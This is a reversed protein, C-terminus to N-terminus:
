MVDCRVAGCRMTLCRALVAPTYVRGKRRTSCLECHMEVILSKIAMFKSSSLQTNDQYIIDLNIAEPSDSFIPAYISFKTVSQGGEPIHGLLEELTKDIKTGKQQSKSLSATVRLGALLPFTQEDELQRFIRQGDYAANALQVKVEYLEGKEPLYEKASSREVDQPSQVYVSSLLDEFSHMAISSTLITHKGNEIMELHTTMAFTKNSFDAFGFTAGIAFSANWLPAVSGDGKPDAHYALLGEAYNVRFFTSAKGLSLDDPRRMKAHFLTVQDPTMPIVAELDLTMPETNERVTVIAEAKLNLSTKVTGTIGDPMDFVLTASGKAFRAGAVVAYGGEVADVEVGVTLPEPAYVRSDTSNEDSSFILFAPIFMSVSTDLATLDPAIIQFARLLASENVFRTRLTATAGAGLGCSMGKATSMGVDVEGAALNKSQLYDAVNSPVSLSEILDNYTPIPVKKLVVCTDSTGPSLSAEVNISTAAYTGFKATASGVISMEKLKKDRISQALRLSLSGDTVWLKPISLPNWPRTLSGVYTVERADGDYTVHFRTEFPNSNNRFQLRMTSAASVVPTPQFQTINVETDKLLMQSGMRGGVGLAASKLTMSKLAVKSDANSFRLTVGADVVEGLLFDFCKPNWRGEIGGSLVWEGAVTVNSANGTRIDLDGAMSTYLTPWTPIAVRVSTSLFADFGEAIDMNTIRVKMGTIYVHPAIEVLATDLGATFVIQKSYAGTSLDLGAPLFITCYLTAQDSWDKAVTDAPLAAVIKDRIQGSVTATFKVFAGAKMDANDYNQLTTTLSTKIEPLKVGTLANPLTAVGFVKALYATLNGKSMHTFGIKLTRDACDRFCKFAITSGVELTETVRVAVEGSTAFSVMHYEPIRTFVASGTASGFRLWPTAMPDYLKVEGSASISNNQMSFSAAITAMTKAKDAPNAFRLKGSVDYSAGLKMKLAKETASIATEFGPISLRTSVPLHASVKAMSSTDKGATFTGSIIRGKQKFSNIAVINNRELATAGVVIIQDYTCAQGSTLTSTSEDILWRFLGDDRITTM